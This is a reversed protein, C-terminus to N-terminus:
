RRPERGCRACRRDEALADLFILPVGLCICPSAQAAEVPGIGLRERADAIAADIEADTMGPETVESRLRAHLDDDQTASDLDFALQDNV